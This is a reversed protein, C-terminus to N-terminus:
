DDDQVQGTQFAAREVGAKEPLLIAERQQHHQTYAHYRVTFTVPCDATGSDETNLTFTETFTYTGGRIYVTIGTEPFEVTNKLARVADRVREFSAFPGDTKSENPEPLKGSWMDNGEPSIYFATEDIKGACTIFFSVIVIM